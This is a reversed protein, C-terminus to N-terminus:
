ERVPVVGLECEFVVVGDYHGFEVHESKGKFDILKVSVDDGPNIAAVHM